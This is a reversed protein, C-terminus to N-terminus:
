GKVGPLPAECFVLGLRSLVETLNGRGPEMDAALLLGSSTPCLLSPFPPKSFLLSGRYNGKKRCRGGGARSGWPCM